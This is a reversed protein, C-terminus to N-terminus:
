SKRKRFYLLFGAGIVAAIGLSATVLTTPFSLESAAQTEPQAEQGVAFEFAESEGMHGVFDKAYVTLTHSGDALGDM